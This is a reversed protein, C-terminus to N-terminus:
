ESRKKYVTITIENIQKESALDKKAGEEEERKIEQRGIMKTGKASDQHPHKVEEEDRIKEHDMIPFQDRM